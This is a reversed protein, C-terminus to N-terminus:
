QGGGTKYAVQRELSALKQMVEAQARQLALTEEVIRTHAFVNAEVWKKSAESFAKLAETSTPNKEFVDAAKFLAQDSASGSKGDGALHKAAEARDFSSGEFEPLGAKEEMRRKDEALKALRKAEQDAKDALRQKEAADKAAAQQKAAAAELDRNKSNQEELTQEQGHKEDADKQKKVFAEADKKAKDSLKKQQAALDEGEKKLTESDAKPDGKAKGAQLNSAEAAAEAAQKKLAELAQAEHETGSGSRANKTFEQEARAVDNQLRAARRVAADAEDNQKAKALADQQAAQNAAVKVDIDGKAAASADATKAALDM